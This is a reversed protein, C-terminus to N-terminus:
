AQIRFGLEKIAEVPLDSNPQQVIFREYELRDSYVRRLADFHNAFTNSDLNSGGVFAKHDRWIDFHQRFLDHWASATSGSAQVTLEQ